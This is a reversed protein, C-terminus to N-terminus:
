KGRMASKRCNADTEDKGRFGNLGVIMQTKLREWNGLRVQQQQQQTTTTTGPQVKPGRQIQKLRLLRGEAGKMKLEEKIRHKRSKIM